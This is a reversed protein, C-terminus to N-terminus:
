THIKISICSYVDQHQTHIQKKLFAEGLITVENYINISLLIENGTNLDNKQNLHSPQEIEKGMYLVIKQSPEESEKENKEEFTM